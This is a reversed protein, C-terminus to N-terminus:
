GGQKRTRAAQVLADIMWRRLERARRDDIRLVDKFALMAEPGIILALAMKLRKFSAPEFQESTPKLASDILASRRNQRTPVGASDKQLSQELSQILMMRLQVENDRIMAEIADDAATLRAVPDDAPSDELIAEADPFAVDVSAELLLAEVGPFYRYATARSVMAEEAVEELTPRSGNAKMLRAGADLLDKRTRNRQNTRGTGQGAGM